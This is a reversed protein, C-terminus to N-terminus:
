SSSPQSHIINFNVVSLQFMKTNLSRHVSSFSLLCRVLNQFIVRKELSFERMTRKVDDRKGQKQFFFYMTLHKRVNECTQDARLKFLLFCQLIGNTRIVMGLISSKTEYIIEQLALRVLILLLLFVCLLFRYFHIWFNSKKHWISRSIDHFNKIMMVWM